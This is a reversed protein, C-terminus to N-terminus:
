NANRKEWGRQKALMYVFGIGKRGLGNGDSNFGKWKNAVEGDYGDGWAEAMALGNNGPFESHIGMLVGVWEDYEIDWPPIAKLADLVEKEDASEAKYVKKIKHREEIGTQQYRRILDKVIELPLEKAIWEADCAGPKGGYFFRVCDKCKRDASGFIWLLAMAALVYNKPQRIPTDLLFIARARPKDPTHSPTTYLLSSYKSIFSDKRLTNLTSRADETDFDIGLHQGMLYNETKRWPVKLQTTIPHGDCLAAALDVQSLSMNVFSGNLWQYKQTDGDSIKGYLQPGIAVNYTKDYDISAM